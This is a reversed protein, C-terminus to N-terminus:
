LKGIDAHIHLVRSDRRNLSNVTSPVAADGCGNTGTTMLYRDSDDIEGVIDNQLINDPPDFVCAGIVDGAQVTVPVVPTLTTCGFDGNDGLGTFPRRGATLAPIIVDYSDTQSARLRYIAFTAEYSSGLQTGRYNCFQFSTITGNCPAPNQTNLYFNHDRNATREEENTGIVGCTDQGHIIM